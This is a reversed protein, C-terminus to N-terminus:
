VEKITRVIKTEVIFTKANHAFGKEFVNFEIEREISMDVRPNELLVIDIFNKVAELEDDAFVSSASVDKLDCNVLYNKATM